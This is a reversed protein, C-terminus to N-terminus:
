RGSHSSRELNLLAVPSSLNPNLHLNPNHFNYIFAIFDKLLNIGLLALKDLSQDLKVFHPREIGINCRRTQIAEKLVPCLRSQMFAITRLSDEQTLSFEKLSESARLMFVKSDDVTVGKVLHM